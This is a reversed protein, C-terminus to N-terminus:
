CLGDLAHGGHVVVHGTKVRGLHLEHHAVPTAQVAVTAGDPLQFLCAHKCM